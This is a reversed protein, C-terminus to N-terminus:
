LLHELVGPALRLVPPKRRFNQIREELARLQAANEIRVNQNTSQEQGIRLRTMCEFQSQLFPLHQKGKRRKGFQIFDEPPFFEKSVDILFIDSAKQSSQRTLRLPNLNFYSNCGTTIRLVILEEFKSHAPAGRVDDRAVSVKECQM